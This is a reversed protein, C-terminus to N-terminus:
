LGIPRVYSGLKAIASLSIRKWSGYHFTQCPFPREAPCASTGVFCRSMRVEASMMELGDARPTVGTCAAWNRKVKSAEERGWDGGMEKRSKKVVHWTHAEAEGTARKKIGMFGLTTNIVVKTEEEEKERGWVVTAGCPASGRKNSRPRKLKKVKTTMVQWM